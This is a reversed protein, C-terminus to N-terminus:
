AGRWPILRLRRRESPRDGDAAPHGLLAEAAGAILDVEALVQEARERGLIEAASPRSLLRQSEVVAAQLEGLRRRAATLPDHSV